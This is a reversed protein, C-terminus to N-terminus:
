YYIFYGFKEVAIRKKERMRKMLKKRHGSQLAHSYSRNGSGCIECTM